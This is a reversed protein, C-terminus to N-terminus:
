RRPPAARPEDLEALAATLDANVGELRESVAPYDGQAMAAGAEQLANVAHALAGRVQQVSQRSARLAEAAAVRENGRDLLARLETLAGQARSQVVARQEAALKAAGEAQERSDLAYSLAIRYDHLAVAEHSQALAAVAAALADAAYQEAGAARAADIAGEAQDMERSPPDACAVLTLVALLALLSMARRSQMRSPPGAQAPREQTVM